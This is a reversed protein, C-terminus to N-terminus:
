PKLLASWSPSAKPTHGLGQTRDVAPDNPRLGPRAALVEKAAEEVREPNIEGAEDLFDALTKGSLTLLDGPVSLHAGALREVERTQMAEIRATATALAERAENREVRYRAERNGRPAEDPSDAAPGADAPDTDVVPTELATESM